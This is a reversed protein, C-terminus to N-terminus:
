RAQFKVIGLFSEAKLSAGGVLAGDVDPQEMLDKVNAPKVSGGYQIRLGEALAEDYLGRVLDRIHAHIEQAQEPTATEGTGIAWVPEYAIIMKSADERPIGELAGRVQREVVEFARDAKREELVEGVCLIPILGHRFAAKLKRNVTEDTEGFYQRRESHGLIVARCGVDRLMGASVEGTYAGAEEWHMDQAALGVATGSLIRGVAYLATFPPAVMVEVEENGELGELLGKVLSEAEDMLLNMKWNGAIVPRRNM